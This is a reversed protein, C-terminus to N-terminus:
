GEYSFYAAGSPKVPMKLSVFHIDYTMFSHWNCLKSKLIYVWTYLGACACMVVHVINIYNGHLIPLIKLIYQNKGKKVNVVHVLYICTFHWRGIRRHEKWIKSPVLDSYLWKLCFLKKLICTHIVM